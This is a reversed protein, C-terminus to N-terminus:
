HIQVLGESASPLGVHRGCLPRVIRMRQRHRIGVPRLLLPSNEARALRPGCIKPPRFGHVSPRKVIPIKYRINYEIRYVSKKHKCGTRTETPEPRHKTDSRNCSTATNYYYSILNARFERKCPRNSPNKGKRFRNM